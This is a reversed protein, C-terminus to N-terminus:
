PKLCSHIKGHKKLVGLASKCKNTSGSQQQHFNLLEKLQVTELVLRGCEDMVSPVKSLWEATQLTSTFVGCVFMLQLWFCKYLM